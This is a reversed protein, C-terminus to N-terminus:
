AYQVEGSAPSLYIPFMQCLLSYTQIMPKSKNLLDLIYKSISEDISLMITNNGSGSLKEAGIYGTSILQDITESSLTIPVQIGPLGRLCRVLYNREKCLRSLDNVVTSKATPFNQLIIKTVCAHFADYKDESLMLYSLFDYNLKTVPHKLLKERNEENNFFDVADEKTDHWESYAQESLWNISEAILPDTDKNEIILQFLKLVNVGSSKLYKALPELEGISIAGYFIARLIRLRLMEKETIWKTSRVSEEFEAVFQGRYIGFGEQILRYKTKIEFKKRSEDTELDSGKLLRIEGGGISNFGLEYAKSLSTLHSDATEGPLGLLIDTKFRESSSILSKSIELLREASINKRNIMEEVHPDFTQFAIYADSLGRLTKAIEIMHDKANKDWWITLTHFPRWKDYLVKIDRSIDVDRPLLGFNADALMWNSFVKGLKAVYEMDSHVREMSFQKVHKRNAGWTCYSCTHPCGRNTEFLPIFEPILFDDLIGSTYPSPIYDLLKKEEIGHNGKLTGSIISFCSEIDFQRIDEGNCIGGPAKCLMKQLLSAFPVEGEFTIYVDVFDNLSLFSKIGDKDSRINPGGMVIPLDPYKRKISRGVFSNLAENWTYNTLGVIAPQKKDIADLVDECYKFLTIDVDGGLCKKAYAALYAINLPVVNLGPYYNHILDVLYILM